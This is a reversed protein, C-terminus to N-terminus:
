EEKKITISNKRYLFKKNWDMVDKLVEPNSVKYNGLHGFFLHCNVGYKKSECLIILNSEELELESNESFPVIHHVELNKTSGCVSCKKHKEIFADRISDWKPSRSKSWDYKKDVIVEKIKKIM